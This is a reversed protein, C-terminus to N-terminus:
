RTSVGFLSKLFDVPKPFPKEGEIKKLEEKVESSAFLPDGQNQEFFLNAMNAILKPDRKGEKYSHRVFKKIFEDRSVGSDDDELKM